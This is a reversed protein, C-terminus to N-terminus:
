NEDESDPLSGTRFDIHYSVALPRPGHTGKGVLREYRPPAGVSTAHVSMGVEVGFQKSSRRLLYTQPGTGVRLGILKRVDHVPPKPPPSWRCARM